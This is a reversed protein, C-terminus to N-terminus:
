NGRKKNFLLLGFEVYDAICTNKSYRDYKCLVIIFVFRLTQKMYNSTFFMNVYM